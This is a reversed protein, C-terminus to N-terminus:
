FGASMGVGFVTWSSKYEGANVYVHGPTPLEQMTTDCAADPDGTRIPNNQQLCAGALSVNRDALFAHAFMADFRLHAVRFGIGATLMHKNSDPSILSLYEDPAAGTEYVYGARIDVPLLPLPQTEIGLKLAITDKLNRKIDLAGIQYTGVGPQDEIRVDHPTLTIKDQQSWMEWDVGAEARFRPHPRAEVGARFVAPMTMSMDSSEGEVHAGNFFGNSPLRVRVTGSARVWYPLRLSAGLSLKDSPHYQIGGQASPTFFSTEQLESVVDYEPNEPATTTQSPNSSLVVRTNFGVFLNSMGFGLWLKDSVKWGLSADIYALTTNHLSVLQYRQAGDEPYGDLSAYPTMLGVGLVWQRDLSWVGILNPHPLKQPDNEVPDQLNGGSDVRTYTVPHEIGALDLLLEHKRTRGAMAALGAPNYWLALPDDAGAVFAGGRGSARVGLTPLTLGGAHAAPTALELLLLAALGVVVPRVPKTESM